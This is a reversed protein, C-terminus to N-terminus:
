RKENLQSGFYLRFAATLHHNSIFFSAAGAVANVLHYRNKDPCNKLNKTRMKPLTIVM